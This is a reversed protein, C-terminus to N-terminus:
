VETPILDEVSVGRLEALLKMAAQRNIKAGGGRPMSKLPIPIENGDPDKLNRYKSARAQVTAIKMELKNAVEPVSNSAEWTRIFTEMDVRPKAQGEAKTM